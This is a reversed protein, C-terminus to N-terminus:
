RDQFSLPDRETNTYVTDFRSVHIQDMMESWPTKPQLTAM